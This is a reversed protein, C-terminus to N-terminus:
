GVETRHLDLMTEVEQLASRTKARAEAYDGARLDSAAAALVNAVSERRSILPDPVEGVEKVETLVVLATGKVRLKGEGQYGLERINYCGEDDPGDVIRLRVGGWTQCITGPPFPHNLQPDAIRYRPM